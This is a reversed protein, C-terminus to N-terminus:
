NKQAAEGNNDSGGEGQQKALAELRKKNRKGIVRLTNQREHETMEKWNDIRKMTGDHNIIMPGLEDMSVREGLTLTQIDDRQADHVSPLLPITTNSPDEAMGERGDSLIDVASSFALGQSSGGLRLSNALFLIISCFLIRLTIRPLIHM